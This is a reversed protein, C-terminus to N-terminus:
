TKLRKKGKRKKNKAVACLLTPRLQLKWIKTIAINAKYGLTEILLCQDECGRTIKIAGYEFSPDYVEM